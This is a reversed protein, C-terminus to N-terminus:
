ELHPICTTFSPVASLCARSFNLIRNPRSNGLDKPSFFSWRFDTCSPSQINPIHCRTRCKLLSKTLIAATLSMRAGEGELTETAELLRCEAVPWGGGWTLGGGVVSEFTIV